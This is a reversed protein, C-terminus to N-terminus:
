QNYGYQNDCHGYEIEGVIKDPLFVVFFRIIRLHFGVDIRYRCPYTTVDLRYFKFFVLQHFLAIRKHLYIINFITLFHIFCFGCYLVGTRLYIYQIGYMKGADELIVLRENAITISAEETVERYLAQEPTEGPDVGGGVLAYYEMGFKNRHMLLLQNDKIVVARSAYRM